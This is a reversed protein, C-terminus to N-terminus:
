SGSLIRLSQDAGTMLSNSSYSPPMNMDTLRAEGSYFEPADNLTSAQVTLSRGAGLAQMNGKQGLQSTGSNLVATVSRGGLPNKKILRSIKSTLQGSNSEKAVEVPKSVAAPPTEPTGGANSVETNPEVNVETQREVAPLIEATRGGYGPSQLESSASVGGKNELGINGSGATSTPLQLGIQTATNTPLIQVTEIRGDSIGSLNINLDALETGAKVAELGGASVSTEKIDRDALETQAAADTPSTPCVSLEQCLATNTFTEVSKIEEISFTTRESTEFTESVTEIEDRAIETLFKTAEKFSTDQWSSLLLKERLITEIEELHTKVRTGQSRTIRNYDFTVHVNKFRPGYHGDWQGADWGRLEIRVRNVANPSDVHLTGRQTAQEVTNGTITDNALMNNGGSFVKLDIEWTDPNSGNFEGSGASNNRRNDVDAGYTFTYGQGKEENTMTPWPSVWQGTQVNYQNRGEEVHTFVRGDHATAFGEGVVIGCPHWETNNGVCRSAGWNSTMRQGDKSFSRNGILQGSSTPTVTTTTIQETTTVTVPTTTKTAVRQFSSATVPTSETTTIPTTITTTTPTTTRTTIPIRTKVTTPTSIMTTVPTVTTTTVSRDANTIVTEVPTGRSKTITPVGVESTITATGRSVVVTPDGEVTAIAPAGTSVSVVSRGTQTKDQIIPSKSITVVSDGNTRSVSSGTVVTGSVVTNSDVGRGGAAVCLNSFNVSQIMLVFVTGFALRHSWFCSKIPRSNTKGHNM